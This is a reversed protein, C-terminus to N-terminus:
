TTSSACCITTSGRGMTRFLEKFDMRLARGLIYSLKGM